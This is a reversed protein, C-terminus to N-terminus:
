YFILLANLSCLLNYTLTKSIMQGVASACCTVNFFFYCWYMMSGKLM